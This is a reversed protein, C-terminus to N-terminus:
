GGFLKRLVHGDSPGASGAFVRNMARQNRTLKESQYCLDLCTRCFLRGSALYLAHVRRGCRPCLWLWRLGTNKGVKRPRGVADVTGAGYFVGDHTWRLAFTRRDEHRFPDPNMVYAQLEATIELDEYEDWERHDMLFSAYWVRFKTSEGPKLALLDENRLSWALVSPKGEVEGHM